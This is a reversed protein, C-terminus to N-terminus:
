QGPGRDDAGEPRRGLNRSLDQRPALGIIGFRGVSNTFFPQTEFGEDDTSTVRGTALALPKDGVVINGVASVFRNSGVVIKYGSHFPPNVRAVGDGIDYVTDVGALDFQINQYSYSSLTPQVAAGFIGSRAEYNDNRLGRGTIAEKGKISSHPRAVAFSDNIPRGIGFTGDAFALSTGIQLRARQRDTLNGLSSGNTFVSARANFRNGVYDLSANASTDGRSDTFGIDYGWSGVSNDAGRAVTARFDQTRSRYDANARGRQGFLMSIGVRVGFNDRYFNDKGYEVGGNVRFRRNLRHSVDVYAVTRTPLNGGQRTHTVGASGYTYLSFSQTYSATLTLTSFTPRFIEDLTQYNRSQYDVTVSLQKRNEQDNGGRLRYAGRFAYGTRGGISVGGQLDFAGPIFQPILTMEGGFIQRDDSIQAAGGLILNDSLAKRYFAVAALQKTYDPQFALTRALAGVSFVYEYDGAELDLPEFFYDYNITQERGAADRIVLSVDNSGFQLPLNALDYRGAELQLTQYQAGNILVDVTSNSDLFIERGGLRSAPLFPRFTQRRREVSIGGIYPTRLLPITDPRLDGASFRRYQEPQDYVARLSRRYFRYNDDFQDTFAGDLELVINKFRTAGFIYLEPKQAGTDEDYDFNGNLNLFASFKAPDMAPLVSETQNQQQMGLTGAPRWRGDLNVVIIELRNQDFRIEFGASALTSASVFADSGLIDDLQRRGADNLLSDLQRRLSQSEYSIEGESSIQVLVDGLVRQNHVLPVNFSLNRGQAATALAAAQGSQQWAYAPTSAFAVLCSALTAAGVQQLWRNKGGATM